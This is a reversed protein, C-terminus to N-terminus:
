GRVLALAATTLPQQRFSDCRRKRALASCATALPRSWGSLIAGEAFRASRTSASVGAKRVSRGARTVASAMLDEDRHDADTAPGTRIPYPGPVPQWPQSSPAPPTAMVTGNAKGELGTANVGLNLAPRLVLSQLNIVTM